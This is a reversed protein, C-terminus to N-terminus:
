IKKEQIYTSDTLPNRHVHIKWGSDANKNQTNPGHTVKLSIYTYEYRFWTSILYVRILSSSPLLISRSRIVSSSRKFAVVTKLNVFRSLLSITPITYFCLDDHYTSLKMSISYAVAAVKEKLIWLFVISFRRHWQEWLVLGHTYEKFVTCYRFQSIVYISSVMSLSFAAEVLCELHQNLM